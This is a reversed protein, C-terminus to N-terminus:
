RVSTSPARLAYGFPIQRRTPDTPNKLERAHTTGQNDVVYGIYKSQDKWSHFMMTHDPYTPYEPHDETFIVDGSELANIDKIRVWKLKKELFNSFPKTVLSTPENLHLDLPVPVDVFRLATSMFAVCGLIRVDNPDARDQPKWWEEVKRWVTNFSEPKSYFDFLRQNVPSQAVVVESSDQLENAEANEQAFVPSIFFANLLVSSLIWPAIKIKM